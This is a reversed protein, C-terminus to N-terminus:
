VVITMAVGRSLTTQLVLNARITDVIIVDFLMWVGDMLFWLTSKNVCLSFPLCCFFMFKNVYFM